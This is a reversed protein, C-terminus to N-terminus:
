ENTVEELKYWSVEDSYQSKVLKRGCKICWWEHIDSHTMPQGCKCIERGEINVLYNQCGERIIEQTVKTQNYVAIRKDKFYLELVHDDPEVLKFGKDKFEGLTQDQVTQKM